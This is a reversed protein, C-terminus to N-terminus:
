QNNELYQDVGKECRTLKQDRTLAYINENLESRGRSAEKHYIHFQVGAFKIKCGELGNNLFRQVLEWDESGWGTMNENYGNVLIFDELWFALNSGRIKSIKAESKVAFNRLLKSRIGSEANIMKGSWWKVSVNKSKIIGASKEESMYLRSGQVYYGKKAFCVHDKIFKSHLICDGDIQIIYPYSAKAITENLVVTRRFGDDPIWVHILPVPFKSQYKSIISKTEEGSGDDAILVENPLVKQLLVSQLVLDLAVPWNYTSIILSSSPKM